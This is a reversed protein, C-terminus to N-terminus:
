LKLITNTYYNYTIITNRFHKQSIEADKDSGFHRWGFSWAGLLGATQEVM